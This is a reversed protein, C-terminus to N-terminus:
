SQKPKLVQDVFFRVALRNVGDSPCTVIGQQWPSRDTATSGQGRELGYWTKEAITENTQTDIIIVKTGAVWYKRDNPDVYNIYDIAYRSPKTTTETKFFRSSAEKDEEAKLKYRLYKGDDQKIDVFDYGKFSLKNPRISAGGNEIGRQNPTNKDRIEWLLYYLIYSEKDQINELTANEWMPDYSFKNEYKNPVKLLTVGEVNNVTKYIKEGASKCREDFIAKATAYRDQKAEVVQKDANIRLAIPTIFGLMVLVGALVGFFKRHVSKSVMAVIVAVVVTAVLAMGWYSYFAFKSFLM